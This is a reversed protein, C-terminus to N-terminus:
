GARTSGVPVRSVGDIACWPAHRNSAGVGVPQQHSGWPLWASIGLPMQCRRWCARCAELTCDELNGETQPSAFTFWAQLTVNSGICMRRVRQGRKSHWYGFCSCSRLLCTYLMTFLQLITCGPSYSCYQTCCPSYSCYPTCVADRIFLLMTYLMTFLLLTDIYLMMFLYCQICCVSYLQIAYPM